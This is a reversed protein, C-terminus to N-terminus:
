SVRFLNFVLPHREFRRIGGHEFSWYPHLAIRLSETSM